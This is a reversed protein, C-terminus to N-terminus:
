VVHGLEEPVVLPRDVDHLLDPDPGDPRDAPQLVGAAEAGPEVSDGVPEHDVADPGVGGLGPGLGRPRYRRVGGRVLRERGLVGGRDVVGKVREVSQVPLHQDEVEQLADAMESVLTLEERIKAADFSPEVQRCLEKGLACAAYGALLERVKAFELLELTHADMM